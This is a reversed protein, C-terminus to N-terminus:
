IMRSRLSPPPPADQAQTFHGDVLSAVSLDNWFMLTEGTEPCQVRSRSQGYSWPEIVGNCDGRGQTGARTVFGFQSASLASLDGPLAGYKGYFTNAATNYKEIQSITARLAAARILDQGVLVSGVILGIIVLVISLEILTFGDRAPRHLREM